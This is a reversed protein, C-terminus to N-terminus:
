VSVNSFESHFNLTGPLKAQEDGRSKNLQWAHRLRRARLCVDPRWKKLPM